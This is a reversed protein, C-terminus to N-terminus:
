VMGKTLIDGDCLKKIRHLKKIFDPSLQYIAILEEPLYTVFDGDYLTRCSENSVILIDEGLLYSRVLIAMNADRFESASVSLVDGASAIRGSEPNQSEPTARLQDLLGIVIGPM